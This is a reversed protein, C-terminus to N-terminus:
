YNVLKIYLSEPLFSHHHVDEAYYKTAIECKKVLKKPDYKKSAISFTWWNGAYTSVPVTYLTVISFMQALKHQIDHIFQRHFHLSETQAVFIGDTKLASFASTFFQDTFLSEATGIPDTSDVIIVDFKDTTESLFKAGDNIVLQVRKDSFGTSLTPFFSRSVDIVSQDIEVLTVKKVNKHKLVERLTGGDGGGIILVENPSNHAHLPVHAIMEHYFYEDQETLQVIDNLVLIKGFYPSSLVKITGYDTELTYLTDDISYTYKIPAFPDNEIFESAPM